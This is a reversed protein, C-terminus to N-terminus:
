LKHISIPSKHYSQLGVLIKLRINGSFLLHKSTKAIGLCITLYLFSIEIVVHMVIKQYGGGWVYRNETNLKSSPTNLLILKM